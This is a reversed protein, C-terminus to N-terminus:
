ENELKEFFTGINVIRKNAKKAVMLAERYDSGRWICRLDSLEPEVYNKVGYAKFKEKESFRWVFYKTNM